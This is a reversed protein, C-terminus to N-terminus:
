DRRVGFAVEYDVDAIFRGWPNIGTLYLELCYVLANYDCANFCDSHKLVTTYIYTADHRDLVDGHYLYGELIDISILLEQPRYYQWWESKLYHAERYSVWHLSVANRLVTIATTVSLYRIPDNLEEYISENVPIIKRKM